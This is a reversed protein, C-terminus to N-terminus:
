SEFLDLFNHFRTEFARILREAWGQILFKILQQRLLANEVILHTRSHTLDSFLDIILVPTAAKIWSKIREQLWSLFKRM